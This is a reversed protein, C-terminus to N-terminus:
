EGDDELTLLAHEGGAALIPAGGVLEGLLSEPLRPTRHSGVADHGMAKADGGGAGELPRLMDEDAAEIEGPPHGELVGGSAVGIAPGRATANMSGVGTREDRRRLGPPFAQQAYAVPMPFTHMPAHNLPPLAPIYGTDVGQRPKGPRPK